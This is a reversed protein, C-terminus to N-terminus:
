FTFALTGSDAAHSAITDRETSQGRAEILKDGNADLM